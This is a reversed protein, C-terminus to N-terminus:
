YTFSSILETSCARWLLIFYNHPTHRTTKCVDTVDFQISPCNPKLHMQKIIASAYRPISLSQVTYHM